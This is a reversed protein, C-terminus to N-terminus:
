ASAMMLLLAPANAHAGKGLLAPFCKINGDALIAVGATYFIWWFIGRPKATFFLTLVRAFMLHAAAAAALAVYALARRSRRLREPLLLALAAAAASAASCWLFGPMIPITMEEVGAAGTLDGEACLCLSLWSLATATLNYHSHAITFAMSFFFIAATHLAWQYVLQVAPLQPAKKKKKKTEVAVPPLLPAGVGLKKEVSDAM